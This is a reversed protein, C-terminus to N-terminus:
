KKVSQYWAVVRAKAGKAARDDLGSWKDPWFDKHAIRGLIILVLDRVRWPRGYSGMDQKGLCFTFRRDDLAAILQPVAVMGKNALLNLSAPLTTYYFGHPGSYANTADQLDDIWRAIKEKTTATEVRFRLGRSRDKTQLNLQAAYEAAQAGETTKPFRGSMMVAHFMLRPRDFSRDPIEYVVDEWARRAAVDLFEEIFRNGLPDDDMGDIAEHMLAIATPEDGFHSAMRSAVAFSFADYPLPDKQPGVPQNGFKRMTEFHKRRLQVMSVKAGNLWTLFDIRRFTAPAPMYFNPRAYALDFRMVRFDNKAPGVLFGHEIVSTGDSRPETVEVFDSKLLRYGIRDICHYIRTREEEFPSKAQFGAGFIALAFLM